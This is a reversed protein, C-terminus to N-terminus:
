FTYKVMPAITVAVAWGPKTAIEAGALAGISFHRLKTFHEFGLGGGFIPGNGGHDLETGEVDIKGPLGLGFGGHAHIWLFNRETTLVAFQVRVQPMVFFLDGVPAPEPNAPDSAASVAMISAGLSINLIELIDYGLFLGIVPATVGYKHGDIKNVIFGVGGETELFFGREVSRIQQVKPGEEAVEKDSQARARAPVLVSTSLLAALLIPVSRRM